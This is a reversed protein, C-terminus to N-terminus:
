GASIAGQTHSKAWTSYWQNLCHDWCAKTTENSLAFTKLQGPNKTSMRSM